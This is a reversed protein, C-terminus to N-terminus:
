VRYSVQSKQSLAAGERVFVGVADTPEFLRLKVSFAHWVLTATVILDFIFPALFYVSLPQAANPRNVPFCAPVPPPVLQLQTTVAWVQYASVVTFCCILFIPVSRKAGTFAYARVTLVSAAGAFNAITLFLPVRFTTECLRRDATQVQVWITIPHTIIPWYRCFLYALKGPFLGGTALLSQEHQLCLIWDYVLLTDTVSLIILDSYSPVYKRCFADLAKGVHEFRTVTTFDAAETLQSFPPLQPVSLVANM